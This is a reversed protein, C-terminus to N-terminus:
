VGYAWVIEQQQDDWTTDPYEVHVYGFTCQQPSRPAIAKISSEWSSQGFIILHHITVTKNYNAKSQKIGWRPTYGSIKDIQCMYLWIYIYIDQCSPPFFHYRLIVVMNMVICLLVFFM